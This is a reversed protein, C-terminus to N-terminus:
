IFIYEIKCDKVRSKIKFFFEGCYVGISDGFDKIQTTSKPLFFTPEASCIDIFTCTIGVLGKEVTSIQGVVREPLVGIAKELESFENTSSALFKPKNSM